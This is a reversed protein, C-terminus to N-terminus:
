PMEMVSFMANAVAVESSTLMEDFSEAAQVRIRVRQFDCMRGVAEVSSIRWSKSQQWLLSENRVVNNAIILSLSSRGNM